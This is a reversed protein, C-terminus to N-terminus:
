SRQWSLWSSVSPLLVPPVNPRRRRLVSVALQLCSLHMRSQKNLIPRTMDMSAGAAACAAEPPQGPGHTCLLAWTHTAPGMHAYCSCLLPWCRQQITTGCCCQLVAQLLTSRSLVILQVTASGNHWCCIVHHVKEKMDLICSYVHGRM